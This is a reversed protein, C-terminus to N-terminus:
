DQGEQDLDRKRHKPPKRKRGEQRKVPPPSGVQTRARLRVLKAASLPKPKRRKKRAM